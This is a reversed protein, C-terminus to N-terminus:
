DQLIGLSINLAASAPTTVAATNVLYVYLSTTSSTIQKGIGDLNWVTMTGLTSDNATLNYVGQVLKEDASSTTAPAAKDNCFSTAPAATLIYVKFGNTQVSNTTISISELVGSDAARFASTITFLAAGGATGTGSGFCVNASYANSSTLTPSYTDTTSASGVASDTSIAVRQTGTGSAGTGVNVAATNVQTLNSTWPGSAQTVAGITNAGTALAPLTTVTGINWTGSQTVPQASGFTVTGIAASGAGLVVTGISNTGAPLATAVAVAARGSSDVKLPNFNATGGYDNGGVINSVYATNIPQPTPAATPLTYGSASGASCGTKCDVQLYYTSTDLQLPEPTSTGTIMGGVVLANNNVAANHTLTIDSIPFGTSSFIPITGNPGVGQVYLVGPTGLSLTNAAPGDILADVGTGGSYLSLGALGYFSNSLLSMGYTTVAGTQPYSGAQNTTLLNGNSDCQLNSANQLAAVTPGVVPTNVCSGNAAHAPARVCVAAALAFLFAVIVRFQM